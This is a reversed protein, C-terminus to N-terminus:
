VVKITAFAADLVARKRKMEAVTKGGLFPLVRKDDEPVFGEGMSVEYGAFQWMIANHCEYDWATSDLVIKNDVVMGMEAVVAVEVNTPSNTLGTLKDKKGDNNLDDLGLRERVQSHLYGERFDCRIKSFQDMIQQSTVQVGIVAYAQPMLAAYAKFFDEVYKTDFAAMLKKPEFKFGMGLVKLDSKNKLWLALPVGVGIIVFLAPVLVLLFVPEGAANM